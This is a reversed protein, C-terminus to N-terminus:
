DSARCYYSATKKKAIEEINHKSGLVPVGNIKSGLKSKNDDIVVVAKSNLEEHNKLEKIIMAGAEGAGVIMVRNYKKKSFVDIFGFRTFRRFVRYSFRVGGIFTVDLMFALIYISRPLTQASIVIFTVVVANAAFAAMVVQVLEEISAYRWLSKYLGLVYFVIIKIVILIAINSLFADFHVAGLADGFIKGEFRLVFALFFSLAVLIADLVILILVAMKKKM